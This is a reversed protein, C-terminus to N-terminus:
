RPRVPRPGNCRCCAAASRSRCPAAAGRWSGKSRRSGRSRDALLELVADTGIPASTRVVPEGAEARERLAQRAVADPPAGAARWWASRATEPAPVAALWGEAFAAALVACGAASARLVEFARPGASALARRPLAALAPVAAAADRPSSEALACARLAEAAFGAAAARVAPDGADRALRERWRRFPTWEALHAPPPAVPGAPLLQRGDAAVVRVASGGARRELEALLLGPAAHPLRERVVAALQEATRAEAALREALREPLASAVARLEEVLPASAQWGLWALIAAPALLLALFLATPTRLGPV